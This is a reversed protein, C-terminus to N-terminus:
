VWVAEPDTVACAAVDFGYAESEHPLRVTAGVSTSPRFTPENLKTTVLGVSPYLASTSVLTPIMRVVGTPTEYLVLPTEVSFFIATLVASCLQVRDHPVPRTPCQLGLAPWTHQPGPLNKRSPSSVAHWVHM